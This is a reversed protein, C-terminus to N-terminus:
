IKMCIIGNSGSFTFSVWVLGSEQDYKIIEAAGSYYWGGISSEGYGSLNFKIHARENIQGVSTLNNSLPIRYEFKKKSDNGEIWGFLQYGPYTTTNNYFVVDPDGKKKTVSKYQIRETKDSRIDVYSDTVVITATTSRGTRDYITITGETKEQGTEKGEFVLFTGSSETELRVDFAEDNFTEIRYDGNGSAIRLKTKSYVEMEVSEAELRVDSYVLVKVVSSVGKNDTVIISAVGSKHGTVKVETGDIIGTAISEDTSKVTYSGNGDTIKFSAEKGPDIEIDKLELVVNKNFEVVEDDDSCGVSSFAIFSLCLAYLIIRIKM